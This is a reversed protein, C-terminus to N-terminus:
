LTFDSEGGTQHAIMTALEKPRSWMPWHGTPLDIFQRHQYHRVEEFMPHHAEILNQIEDSSISCCIFFCPVNYRDSNSLSVIERLITAPEPVALDRFRALHEESLEHLSAQTALQEFGPLPVNEVEAPLDPMFTNGSAVPGSDIWIISKVWNPHQDLFLTAPQNAGSHAVLVAPNEESVGHQTLAAEIHSTQDKLTTSSASTNSGELGPLTLATAEVGHHQLNEVVEEWAWAGLWHGPLLFVPM